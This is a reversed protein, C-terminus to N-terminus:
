YSTTLEETPSIHSPLQLHKNRLLKRHFYLLVIVGIFDINQFLDKIQLM